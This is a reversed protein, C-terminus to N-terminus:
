VKWSILHRGSWTVDCSFTYFHSITLLLKTPIKKKTIFLCHRQFNHYVLPKSLKLTMCRKCLNEFLYRLLTNGLLISNNCYILKFNKKIVKVITWSSTMKMMNRSYWYGRSITLSCTRGVTNKRWYYTQLEPKWTNSSKSRYIKEM